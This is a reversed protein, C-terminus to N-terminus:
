SVALPLIYTSRGETTICLDVVRFVRAESKGYSQIALPSNTAIEQDDHCHIYTGVLDGADDEHPVGALPKFVPFM